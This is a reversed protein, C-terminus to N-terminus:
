ADLETRDGMQRTCLDEAIERTGQKIYDRSFHLPRAEAGIGRLAM